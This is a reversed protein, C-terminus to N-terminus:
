NWSVSALLAFHDSPNLARRPLSNPMPGLEAEEPIRLLEHIIVPDKEVPEHKWKLFFIYDLTGQFDDAWNTYRPEGNAGSNEPHVEHYRGYASVVQVNLAAYATQLIELASQNELDLLTPVPPRANVHVEPQEPLNIPPAAGFDSHTTSKQLIETARDNLHLGRALLYPPDFPEFNFDGLVVLKPAGDVEKAFQQTAEFLGHLQRAREFSAMPHWYLHTTALVLPPLAANSSTSKLSVLLGVNGTDVQRPIQLKSRDYTVTRKGHQQYLSKRWALYLGHRKGPSCYFCGDLGMSEMIANWFSLSASDVEQLALIDPSYAKIQEELAKSRPGWKVANGNTPYRSRRILSQALTNYTM